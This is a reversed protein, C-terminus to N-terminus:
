LKLLLYVAFLGIVLILIASLIVELLAHFISKKSMPNRGISIVSSRVGAYLVAIATILSIATIALSIYIRVPSVKKEAIQQGLRQLFEPVDAKTSKENPNHRIDITVPILGLTVTRNTKGSTDKLTTTGLTVGKGDFAQQARGFVTSQDSATGAKMAVGDVSSLTVYDGSKISGNQTSVLVDYTGSVAVFTENELDDDTVTLPVQRRDVVVGFMNQLESQTAVKVRDSKKGTLEVITGTNLPTDAAYGQVSGGGYNVAAVPVVVAVAVGIAAAFGFVARPVNVTQKDEKRRVPASSAMIAYGGNSRVVSFITAVELRKHYFKSLSQHVVVRRLSVFM